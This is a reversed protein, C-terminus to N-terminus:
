VGDESSRDLQTEWDMVRNQAGGKREGGDIGRM